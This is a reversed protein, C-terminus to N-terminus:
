GAYKAVLANNEPIAAMCPGCWTAWFDVVVIKGDFDPSRGNTWNKVSLGPAMRGEMARLRAPRKAGSFYWSDPFEGRGSATQSMAPVAGPGLIIVASVLVLIRKASSSLTNM